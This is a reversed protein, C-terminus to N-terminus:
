TCNIILHKNSTEVDFVFKGATKAMYKFDEIPLLSYMRSMYVAMGAQSSMLDDDSVKNKAPKNMDVCSTALLLCLISFLITKKM